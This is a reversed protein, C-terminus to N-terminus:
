DLKRTSLLMSSRLLVQTRWSYILCFAIATNTAGTTLGSLSCSWNANYWLSVVAMLILSIWAGLCNTSMLLFLRKWLSQLSSSRRTTKGTVSGVWCAACSENRGVWPCRHQLNSWLRERAAVAKVHFASVATDRRSLLSRPRRRVCLVGLVKALAEGIPIM